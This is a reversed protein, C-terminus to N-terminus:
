PAATAGALRERLTRNLTSIGGGQREIVAAFEQRHTLVLSVSDVIVDTIRYDNGAHIVRWAVDIPPAGSSSIIQSSVMTADGGAPRSRIVKVTEGSYRVFRNSYSRAVYDPLLRQFEQKEQDSSGVWYRGLVSRSIRPMNFNELLIAKFRRERETPPPREGLVKLTENALNNIFAVPDTAIAAQLTGTTVVLAGLVFIVFFLRPLVM